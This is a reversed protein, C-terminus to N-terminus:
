KEQERISEIIEREERERKDLIERIATYPEGEAKLEREGLKCAIEVLMRLVSKVNRGWNVVFYEHKACDEILHYNDM